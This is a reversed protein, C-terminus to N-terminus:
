SRSGEDGEPAADALVARLREANQRLVLAIAWHQNPISSGTAYREQRVGEDAWGDAVRALTTVLRDARAEASKQSRARHLAYESLEKAEGEADLIARLDDAIASATEDYGFGENLTQVTPEPSIRDLYARVRELTAEAVEARRDADLCTENPQGHHLRQVREVEEKLATNERTVKALDKTQEVFSRLADRYDTM